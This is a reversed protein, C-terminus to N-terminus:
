KRKTKNVSLHPKAQVVLEEPLVTTGSRKSIAAALRMVLDNGVGPSDQSLPYKKILRWVFDPLNKGSVRSMYGGLERATLKALGRGRAVDQKVEDYRTQDELSAELLAVTDVIQCSEAKRTAKAPKPEAKTRVAKKRTRVPTPAPRAPPNAVPLPQPQAAVPSSPLAVRARDFASMLVNMSSSLEKYGKSEALLEEYERKARGGDVPVLAEVLGRLVSPEDAPKVPEIAQRMAVGKELDTVSTQNIYTLPSTQWVRSAKQMMAPSIPKVLRDFRILYTRMRYPHGSVRSIYVFRQMARITLCLEDLTLISLLSSFVWAERLASKWPDGGQMFKPLPVVPKPIRSLQESLEQILSDAKSQGLQEHLSPLTMKEVVGSAFGRMDAVTIALCRGRSAAILPLLPRVEQLGNEITGKLDLHFGDLHTEDGYVARLRTPLTALQPWMKFPYGREVLKDRLKQNHEVLWANSWRVGAKLWVVAELGEGGLTGLRAENLPVYQRVFDLFSRVVVRKSSTDRM